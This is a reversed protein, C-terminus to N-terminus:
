RAAAAQAEATEALQRLERVAQELLANTRATLQAASAANGSPDGFGSVGTGAAFPNRLSGARANLRAAQQTFLDSETGRLVADLTARSDADAAIRAAREDALREAKFQKIKEENERQADSFETEIRQLEATKRMIELRTEEAKLIEKSERAKSEIVRLQDIEGSLIRMQEKPGAAGFRQDRAFAAIQGRVAGLKAPDNVRRFEALRAEAAAAARTSDGVGNVLNADFGSGIFEGAQTFVGLASIAGDKALKGLERFSPVLKNLSEGYRMVSLAADDLRGSENAWGAITKSLTLASVPASAAGLAAGASGGMLSGAGRMLTGAMGEGLGTAKGLGRRALDGILARGAGGAGIRGLSKDADASAAKFQRKLQTMNRATKQQLERFQADMRALELTVDVNLSGISASM